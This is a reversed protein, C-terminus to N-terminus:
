RWGDHPVPLNSGSHYQSRFRGINDATVYKGCTQPNDTVYDGRGPQVDIGWWPRHIRPGQQTLEADTPQRIRTAFPSTDQHEIQDPQQGVPVGPAERGTISRQADIALRDAFLPAPSRRRYRARHPVAFRRTPPSRRTTEESSGAARADVHGERRMASRILVPQIGIDRHGRHGLSADLPARPPPMRLRRHPTPDANRRPLHGASDRHRASAPRASPLPRLDIVPPQCPEHGGRAPTASHPREHHHQRQERCRIMPTSWVATNSATDGNSNKSPAPAAPTHCSLIRPHVLGTESRSGSRCSRRRAPWGSRRM